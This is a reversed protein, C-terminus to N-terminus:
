EGTVQKIFRKLYGNIEEINATLRHDGDILHLQAKCNSAFRISHEVPVVDDHWGHV